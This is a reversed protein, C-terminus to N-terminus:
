KKTGSQGNSGESSSGGGTSPSPPSPRMVSFNAYSDKRVSSINKTEPPRQNSGSGNNSKNNSM